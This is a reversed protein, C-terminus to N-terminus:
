RLQARDSGIDLRSGGGPKGDDDVFLPLDGLLQVVGQCGDAAGHGDQIQQQGQKNADGGAGTNDYGLTVTCSVPFTKGQSHAVTQGQCGNGAKGNHNQSRQNGSGKQFQQTCGLANDAPTRVVQDNHKYTNQAEEKVIHEGANQACQAVGNRCQAKQQQCCRQIHHQVDPKHAAELQTNGTNRQSGDNGLANGKHIVQHRQFFQLQHLM